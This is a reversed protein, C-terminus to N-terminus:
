VGEDGRSGARHDWKDVVEVTYGARELTRRALQAQGADDEMLLMRISQHHAM